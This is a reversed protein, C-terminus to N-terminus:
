DNGAPVATRQSLWIWDLNATGGPVQPNHVTKGYEVTVDPLTTLAATQWQHVEAHGDAFSFGCAGGLYGAPVDPFNGGSSDVELYGDNISGPHEDTFIFAMSPPPRIIDAEKVYQKAGEDLNHGVIYVCGMQGNMSYSRLRMGNASPVTDAPCKYIGIQKAVYPTLLANTYLGMNTNGDLATWGEEENAQSTNVWSTGNPLGWNGPANPLLVGQSDDKYMTAALQLQKLNGQCKARWSEMKARSLAPLLLAALIAIITIVVLLEILTFGRRRGAAWRETRKIFEKKRMNSRKLSKM